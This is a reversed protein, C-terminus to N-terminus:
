RYWQYVFSSAAAPGFMGGPIVVPDAVGDVM